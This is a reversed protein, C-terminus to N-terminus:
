LAPDIATQRHTNELIFDVFVRNAQSLYGERRWAICLDMWVPETFPIAILDPDDGLTMKLLTSIGFGQKIVSKILPILNTEIGIRPEMGVQQALRDVAKRHFYGTKFMVLEEEFFDRPDLSDRGCFRHDRGVVAMMQERLFRHAELQQPIEGAAVVGLDLEGKELMQQIYWSGGEVVSLNLHPYRHRFAMLVPPFYYSGLMNPIGVRVSGRTLGRLERMELLADDAAQLLRVSHAYLREGEDTLSVRRDQRHLLTLELEQELKRIAMSVAPQALQLMEAARTFSRAEAVARFYRLHKLDFAM